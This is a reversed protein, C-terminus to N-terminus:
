HKFHIIIVFHLKNVEATYVEAGKILGGAYKLINTRKERTSDCVTGIGAAQGLVSGKIGTNGESGTVFVYLNADHSSNVAIQGIEHMIWNYGSDNSIYPLM